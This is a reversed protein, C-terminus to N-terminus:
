RCHIRCQSYIHNYVTSLGDLWSFVEQLGM